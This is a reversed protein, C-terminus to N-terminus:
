VIVWDAPAISYSPQMKASPTLGEELLTHELYSVFGDSLSARTKSSQPIHLVGENSGNRSQGPM